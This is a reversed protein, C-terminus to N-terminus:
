QAFVIANACSPVTTMPSGGGGAGGAGPNVCATTPIAAACQAYGPGVSSALLCPIGDFSTTTADWDTTVDDECNQLDISTVTAGSCTISRTCLMDVLEYCKTQADSLATAQIPPFCASPLILNGDPFLGGCTTAAAQTDHRCSVFDIPSPRGCGFELKLQTECNGALSYIICGAASTCLDTTLQECQQMSANDIGGGVGGVNGGAGGPGSVNGGGPASGGAIGTSGGSGPGGSGAANVGISGGAAGAAGGSGTGPAGGNGIGAKGGSGVGVPAGGDTVNSGGSGRSGGGGSQPAKASGGCAAFLFAYGIAM